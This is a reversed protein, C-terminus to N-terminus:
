TAQCSLFLKFCFCLHAHLFFNRLPGLLPLNGLFLLTIQVSLPFIMDLYCLNVLKKKIIMARHRTSARLVGEAIWANLM